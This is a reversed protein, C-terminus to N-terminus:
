IVEPSPLKGVSDTMVTRPSICRIQEDGSSGSLQVGNDQENSGVSGVPSECGNLVIPFGSAVTSLVSTPSGNEQQDMVMENLSPKEPKKLTPISQKGSVASGL